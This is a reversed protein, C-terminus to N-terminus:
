IMLSLMINRIIYIKMPTIKAIEGMEILAKERDFYLSFEANLSPRQTFTLMGEEPM